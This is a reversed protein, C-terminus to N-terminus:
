RRAWKADYWGILRDPSVGARFLGYLALNRAGRLLYGDRRFRAASTVAEAELVVLRRRGIRQVLDVDEMLPISRFGGLVMYFTRSILLGQDGYPLGFRHVRFAVWRELWRAMVHDHDLRFRFCAAKNQNESHLIFREVAGAGQETLRTDAHQFLLWASRSAEAGLSLQQGRGREGRLVRAGGAEALAVTEDNSGGDVVITETAALPRHSRLM